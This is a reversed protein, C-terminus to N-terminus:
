DRTHGLGLQGDKNRGWAYIENTATRVLCYDKGCAIEDIEENEVEGSLYKVLYAELNENKKLCKRGLQGHRNDGFTYM